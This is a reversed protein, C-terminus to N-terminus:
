KKRIALLAVRNGKSYDDAGHLGYPVPDNISLEETAFGLGDMIKKMRDLNPVTKKRTEIVADFSWGGPEEVTEEKEAVRTDLLVAEKTVEAINALLKDYELIHYLIGCCLTFDYPAKARIKKWVEPDMVNGHLFEVAGPKVFNNNGWYLRGQKAYDARGEVAVLSTAGLEAYRASWYGCNSAIDLLKKGKFDYKKALGDVILKTRYEVRARLEEPTQKSGIGPVVKIDGIKVEYYWPNLAEIEAALPSEAKKKRSGFANLAKAFLEGPKVGKTKEKQFVSEWTKRGSKFTNFDVEPPLVKTWEEDWNKGYHEVFYRAAFEKARKQYEDRSITGKAKGYTTGGLHKMKVTDSYAVKWGKSYLKYSLEVIAGWCFKFEPNMFGVADVCESRILFALYDPSSVLHFQSGPRPKVHGPLADGIESPSLLGIGPNSDAMRVLDGVADVGQEFVVDNMLIFYYRYSGKSRALRLGVNHGYCKGRFDGDDYRLSCHRSLKDEDTGMEVVHIDMTLGKGMSKLQEVLSDVLDQRNRSVIIAAVDAHRETNVDGLPALEGHESWICTKPDLSKLM